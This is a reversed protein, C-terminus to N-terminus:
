IRIGFKDKNITSNIEKPAYNEPCFKCQAIPERINDIFKQAFQMEADVTLPQYSNVLKKDKTSLEVEFQSSFKPFLDVQGCKNLKGDAMHHCYKSMCVDHARQPNSNHLTFNNKDEQRILAPSYFFNELAICIKLGNADTINVPSYRSEYIERSFDHMNACEDKIRTPLTDWDYISNCAPWSPDKIANYNRSWSDQLGEVLNLDKPPEEITVPHTVFNMIMETVDTRRHIDHLGIYMRIGTDILAQYFEKNFRKKFSANTIISGESEPWLEHLGYMWKIIDPNLTPEGGIISWEGLKLKKAWKRHTQEQEEWRQHGLFLYNNFRNCGTCNFNCTHSIYFELYDLHLMDM